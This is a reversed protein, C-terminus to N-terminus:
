KIEGWTITLKSAPSVSALGGFVLDGWVGENSYINPPEGTWFLAGEEDGGSDDDNTSINFGVVSGQKPSGFLTLRMRAEMEWHNKDKIEAVAYYDDNPGNGFTKVGETFRVANNATIVHQGGFPIEAADFADPARNHNGDVFIEISDDKWTEGGVSGKAASDIQIDDDTLRAAVYLYDADYMVYFVYSVETKGFDWSGTKPTIETKVAYRWENEGITGDIVPPNNVMLMKLADAAFASKYIGFCVIMMILILSKRFAQLFIENKTIAAMNAEKTVITVTLPILIWRFRYYLAMKDLDM